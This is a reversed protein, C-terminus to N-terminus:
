SAYELGPYFYEFGRGQEGAADVLVNSAYCSVDMAVSNLAPTSEAQQHIPAKRDKLSQGARGTLVMQIEAIIALAIETPTNAGIDLGVPAHLRSIQEKPNIEANLLVEQLLRQTRSRAGLLGIYQASSALLLKLVELDDFYNHTMVVGVTNKTISVENALTERRTLIVQDAIAFRENTAISARCDVVTVDWDLTKALQVVPLADQGAGFIVLSPPPQIVEIFVETYGTAWRYQEVKSQQNHLATQADKTLLRILTPDDIDTNVQGSSDLTLRTGVAISSESHFVTALIGQQKTQLCQSLFAILKLSRENNLREILVQVVGNCGIGFGWVLDEDSATNYTVVLVDDSQMRQQTYQYIDNELCGGSIAGIMQGSQTILMRAGPQRYTSGRTNVVTALFLSEGTNQYTAIADLITKLDNM